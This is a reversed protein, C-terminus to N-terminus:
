EHDKDGVPNRSYDADKAERSTDIGEERGCFGGMGGPIELIEREVVQLHIMLNGCDM